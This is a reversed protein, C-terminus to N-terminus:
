ACKEELSADTAQAEAPRGGRVRPPFAFLLAPTLLLEIMCALSVVLSAFLGFRMNPVLSSFGYLAFGLSIVVTSITIAGGAELQTKIVAERLTPTEDISSRLRAMFHITDDVVIGLVIAAVMSTGFDLPLDLASLVAGVALNPLVNPLIALLGLRLSRLVLFLCLIIPLLSWAFSSRATGLIYRDMVTFLRVMGTAELTMDPYHSKAHGLIQDIRREYETRTLSPMPVPLRFFRETPDKYATLSDVPGLSEYAVLMQAVMRSDGPIFRFRNPDEASSAPKPELELAENISKVYDVLSIPRAGIGLAGIWGQFEEMKHLFTPDKVGGSRGSDIVLELAVSGGLIRDLAEAQTREPSGPKFYDNNHTEARLSGILPLCAITAVAATIVIPWRFRHALSTAWTAVRVSRDTPQPEHVRRPRGRYLALMAPFALLSLIWGLGVGLAAEWGLERMPRLRSPVLALFGLVTTLTTFAFPWFLSAIARAAALPANGREGAPRRYHAFFVTLFHICEALCVPLLINFLTFNLMNLKRGLLAMFGLTGLLAAVVVVLPAWVAVGRRFAIFLILAMALVSLPAMRGFDNTSARQVWGAFVPEGSIATAHGKKDVRGLFAELASTLEACPTVDGDVTQVKAYVLASRLDRSVLTGLVLEDQALVERLERLSAYRPPLPWVKELEVLEAGGVIREYKTLSRVQLVIRQDELWRSVQEILSFSTEDFITSQGQPGTIAVVVYKSDGFLKPLREYAALTPDGQVFWIRNQADFALGPRALGVTLSGVLVLSLLLVRIPHETVWRAFSELM